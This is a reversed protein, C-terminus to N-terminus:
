IFNESPHSDNMNQVIQLSTMQSKWKCSSLSVQHPCIVSANPFPKGLMCRTKM